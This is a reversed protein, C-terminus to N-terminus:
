ASPFAMSGTVMNKSLMIKALATKARLGARTTGM